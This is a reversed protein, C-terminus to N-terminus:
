NENSDPQYNEKIKTESILIEKFSIKLIIRLAKLINLEEFKIKRM